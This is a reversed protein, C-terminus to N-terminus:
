KRKDTRENSHKCKQKDKHATKGDDASIQRIKEPLGLYLINSVIEKIAENDFELLDAAAEAEYLENKLAMGISEYDQKTPLKGDYLRLFPNYREKKADECWDDLADAIYIWKGVAHGLSAAIRAGVGDLGYSMIASLLEGFVDAPADVSKAEAREIESLRKLTQAITQDLDSLGTRLAKKRAHAMWPYVLRARLKKMGKEDSLDDLIKHYNLLAAAGACYALSPNHKMTNRKTLPHALCRKQEFEVPTHDFTIRLLALFAFDYSLAMRSCQGTCKGMSRCLGCYTGRYFEYEKVKLETHKVRVYGFM